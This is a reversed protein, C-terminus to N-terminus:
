LEVNALQTLFPYPVSTVLESEPNLTLKLLGHTEDNHVESNAISDLPNVPALLRMGWALSETDRGLFLMLFGILGTFIPGRGTSM